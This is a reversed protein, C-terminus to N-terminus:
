GEHSSGGPKKRRRRERESQARACSKSCYMVGETRFQGHEARGRQRIFARGCPENRCVRVTAEEAMANAVQLCLASFLGLEPKGIVRDNAVVLEVRMSYRSLGVNMCDVFTAWARYEGHEPSAFYDFRERWGVTVDDGASAAKWHLAVLRATDLYAAADLVHTTLDPSDPRETREVKMPLRTEDYPVNIAGYSELFNVVAEPSATDLGLLERLFLEDPLTTRVVDGRYILYGNPSLRTPAKPVPPVPVVFGPWPTPRFRPTEDGSLGHRQM